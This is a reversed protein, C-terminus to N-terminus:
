IEVLFISSSPQNSEKEGEKFKYYSICILHSAAIVSLDHPLSSLLVLAYDFGTHVKLPVPLCRVSGCPYCM